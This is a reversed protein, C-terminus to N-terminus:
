REIPIFLGLGFHCSAGLSIPGAVPKSFNFRVAYGLKDNNTRGVNSSKLRHVKVWGSEEAAVNLSTVDFGRSALEETAQEAVSCGPKQKGSRGYVHRPPVYPTLSKWERHQWLHLLQIGRWGCVGRRRDGQQVQRRCGDFHLRQGQQM